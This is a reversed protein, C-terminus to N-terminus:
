STIKWPNLLNHFSCDDHWKSSKKSNNLNYIEELFFFFNRSVFHYLNMSKFVAFAWELIHALSHEQLVLNTFPKVQCISQKLCPQVNIFSLPPSLSASFISMYIIENIGWEQLQKSAPLKSFSFHKGETVTKGVGNRDHQIYAQSHLM